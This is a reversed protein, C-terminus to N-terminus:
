VVYEKALQRLLNKSTVADLAACQLAAYAQHYRQVSVDKELYLDGNYGEVYVVTPEIPQGKSDAGFDLINFPGTSQGLPFGASFPLVRVEVNPLTGVHALHHLQAAMVKPGGVVCRLASEHLVVDASAPRTKRLILGQRQIRLQVRREHEVDGCDPNTARILAGAYAPIQLM